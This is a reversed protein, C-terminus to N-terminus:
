LNSCTDTVSYHHLTFPRMHEPKTKKATFHRVFLIFYHAQIVELSEMKSRSEARTKNHLRKTEENGVFSKVKKCSNNQGTSSIPIYLFNPHFNELYKYMLM